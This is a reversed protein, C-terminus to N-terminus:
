GGLHSDGIHLPMCLIGLRDVPDQLVSRIVTVILQDVSDIFFERVMTNRDSIYVPHCEMFRSALRLIDDIDNRVDDADVAFEVVHGLDGAFRAAVLILSDIILCRHTIQSLMTKVAIDVRLKLALPILLIHAHFTQHILDLLHSPMM